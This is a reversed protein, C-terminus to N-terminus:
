EGIEDSETGGRRYRGARYDALWVRTTVLVGGAPKIARLRGMRVARYLAASNRYGGLRAAQQLTIIAEEAMVHNSRRRAPAQEEDAYPMGM